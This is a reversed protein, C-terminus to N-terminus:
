VPIKCEDEIEVEADSFMEETENIKKLKKERLTIMRANM